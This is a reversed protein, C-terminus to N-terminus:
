ILGVEWSELCKECYHLNDEEIPEIDLMFNVSRSYDDKVPDYDYKVWVTQLNFAAPKGCERCAQGMM